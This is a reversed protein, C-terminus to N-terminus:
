GHARDEHIRNAQDRKPILVVLPVLRRLACEKGDAIAQGRQDGRWEDKCFTAVGGCSVRKSDFGIPQSFFKFAGARQDPRCRFIPPLSPTVVLTAISVRGANHIVNRKEHHPPQANGLREGVIPMEASSTKLNQESNRARGAM